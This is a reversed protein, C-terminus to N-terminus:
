PFLFNKDKKFVPCGPFIEQANKNRNRFEQIGFNWVALDLHANAADGVPTVNSPGHWATRVNYYECFHALKIARTIGGITSMNGRIFDM